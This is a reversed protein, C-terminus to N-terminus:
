PSPDEILPEPPQAPPPAEPLEPSLDLMPPALPEPELPIPYPSREPRRVPEGLVAAWPGILILGTLYGALHTIWAVPMGDDDAVGMAPGLFLIVLNLAVFAVTVVITGFSILHRPSRDRNFVRGSAGILGSVAGSAGIVVFDVGLNAAIFALGSVIGCFIYFGFFALVGRVGSGLVRAMAGGCTVAFLLAYFANWGAHLWSGHLIQFTLLQEYHGARLGAASLGYAGILAAQDPVGTQFFYLFPISGAAVLSPWPAVLFQKLRGSV